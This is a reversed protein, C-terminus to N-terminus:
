PQAKGTPRSINHNCYSAGGGLISGVRQCECGKGKKRFECEECNVGNCSEEGGGFLTLLIIEGKSEAVAEGRFIVRDGNVSKGVGQIYSINDDDIIFEFNSKNEVEKLIDIKNFHKTLVASHSSLDDLDSVVIKLQANSNKKIELDSNNTITHNIQEKQCGTWILGATLAVVCTTLIIKMNKM